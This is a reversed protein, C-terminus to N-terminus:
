RLFQWIDALAPGLCCEREIHTSHDRHGLTYANLSLYICLSPLIDGSLYLSSINFKASYISTQRFNQVM